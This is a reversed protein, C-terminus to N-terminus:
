FLVGKDFAVPQAYVIPRSLMILVAERGSGSHGKIENQVANRLSLRTRFFAVQVFESGAEKYVQHNVIQGLALNLDVQCKGFLKLFSGATPTGERAKAQMRNNLELEIIGTEFRVASMTPTSATMQVGLFRLQMSYLLVRYKEGEPSAVDENWLSIPQEGGSVKQIVENVEKMFVKQVFVLHHLLDTSLNHEFSGIEAFLQLYDGHRTTLGDSNLGGDDGVSPLRGTAATGEGTARLPDQMVFEGSVSVLPLGLSTSASSSDAASVKSSFSLNHIPLEFKFQTQAGTIGRGWLRGTKYEARLSPLLAAGLSMGDLVVEFTLVLPRHELGDPLQPFDGPELPTQVQSTPPRSTSPVQSATTDERLSPQRLLDSIQKSLQHSSRVMMGHLTAPHQPINATVMGVHLVVSNHSSEGIKATYLAQSKAVSCKVVTQINPTLGELLVATVGGVHVTACTETTKQHYVDKMREKISCSGHAKRLEAEMTLGGIDAKLCLKQVMGVAFVLFTVHPAECSTSGMRRHSTTRTPSKSPDGSANIEDTFEVTCIPQQPLSGMAGRNDPVAQVTNDQRPRLVAETPLMQTTRQLVRAPHSILSYFNLLKYMDQWCEASPESQESMSVSDSDTVPELGGDCSDKRATRSSKRESRVLRGGRHVGISGINQTESVKKNGKTSGVRFSHAIELSGRSGRGTDARKPVRNSKHQNSDAYYAPTPSTSGASYRSLRIDTQTARVDAIVTCFQHVLRVLAMNIRQDISQCSVTVHGRLTSPLATRSRDHLSLPPPPQKRTAKDTVMAPAKAQEERIVARVSLTNFVLAPISTRNDPPPMPYLKRHRPVKRDKNCDSEVIDARLCRLTGALSLQEGTYERYNVGEAERARIGLRELLPRFVVQADALQVAQFDKTGM